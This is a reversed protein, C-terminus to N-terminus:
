IIQQIMMILSKTQILVDASLTKSHTSSTKLTLQKKNMLKRENESNSSVHSDSINM